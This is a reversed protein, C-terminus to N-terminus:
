WFVTRMSTNDSRRECALCPIHALSESEVMIYMQIHAGHTVTQCWTTPTITPKGKTANLIYFMDAQVNREGPLGRFWLQLVSTFMKYSLSNGHFSPHLHCLKVEWSQLYNCSLISSRGLADEFIVGNELSALLPRPILRFIFPQILAKYCILLFPM